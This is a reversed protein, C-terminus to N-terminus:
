SYQNNDTTLNSNIDNALHVLWKQVVVEDETGQYGSSRLEAIFADNWDLEIKVRGDKDIDTGKLNVYPETNEVVIPEPLVEVAKEEVQKLRDSMEELKQLILANTDVVPKKKNWFM